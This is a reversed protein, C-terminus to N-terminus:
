HRWELPVSAQAARRELEHLQARSRDLQAELRAMAGRGPQQAAAARLNVESQAVRARAARFAQSWSARVREEERVAAARARTAAASPKAPRARAAGAEIRAAGREESGDRLSLVTPAAEIERPCGSFDLPALGVYLERAAASRL